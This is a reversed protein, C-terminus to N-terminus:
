DCEVIMADGEDAVIPPHGIVLSQTIQPAHFENSRPYEDSRQHHPQHCPPGLTGSGRGPNAKHTGTGLCRQDTAKGVPESDGREETM